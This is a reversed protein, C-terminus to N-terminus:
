KRKKLEQFLTWYGSIIGLILMIVLLMKSERHMVYKTIVHYIALMLIIPATLTYVYNTAIAFYKAFKKDRKM